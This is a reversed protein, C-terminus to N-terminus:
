WRWQAQMVYFSFTCVVRGDFFHCGGRWCLLASCRVQKEIMGSSEGFSPVVGDNTCCSCEGPLEVVSVSSVGFFRVDGEFGQDLDLIRRMLFCRWCSRSCFLSRRLWSSIALRDFSLVAWTVVGGLMAEVPFTAGGLKGLLNSSSSRSCLLIMACCCCCSMLARVAALEALVAM